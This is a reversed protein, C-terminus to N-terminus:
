NATVTTTGLNMNTSRYAYYNETFGNSNTVSVTEPPQFGGEFGGVTFTTTGLRTPYAYIIYETAGPSVTFVKSTVNSIENNGLSSIDSDSYGSPITTTGWYKKNYFAHVISASGTTAGKQSSLNFVVSGGVAPYNVDSASTVSTFPTSMPLPSGWGSFTITSGIPPGNNYSAGFNISGALKWVGSGILQVASLSDSFSAVSFSYTTGQPAWVANTGNFLYAYNIIATTTDVKATINATGTPSETVTFTNTSFNISSTPSSIQVGGLQIQLASAGGGGSGSVTCDIRKESPNDVCTVASGTFNLKNRQTVTSGEDLIFNIAVGGTGNGIAAQAQIGGFFLYLLSIIVIAPPISKARKM